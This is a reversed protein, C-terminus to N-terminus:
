FRDANISDVSLGKSLSAKGENWLIETIENLSPDIMWFTTMSKKDVDAGLPVSIPFTKAAADQIMLVKLMSVNEMETSPVSKVCTELPTLWLMLRM